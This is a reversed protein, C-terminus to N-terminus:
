KPKMEYHDVLFQSFTEVIVEQVDLPISTQNLGHRHFLYHFEEHLITTKLDDSKLFKNIRILDNSPDCQGCLGMLDEFIYKVRKGLINKSRKKWGKV